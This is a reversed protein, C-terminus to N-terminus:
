NNNKGYKIRRGFVGGLYMKEYNQTERPSESSARLVISGNEDPFIVNYIQDPRLITSKLVNTSHTVFFAQAHDMNNMLFQIIFEELENSFGSSFEDFLFMANTSIAHKLIPLMHVLTQNGESEMLLPLWCDINEKKVFIMKQSDFNLKFKSNVDHETEYKIQTSFNNDRLLSNTYDINYTDEFFDLGSKENFNYIISTRKYSNFYASNELFSMWDKLIKNNSFKDIFYYKKLFLISKDFDDSNYKIQEGKFCVEATKTNREIIVENDLELKEYLIISTMNFKFSYLIKSKDISFEYSLETENSDGFLCVYLPLVVKTDSFLMTLLLKISELISTKGVANSGLIVGGKVIGDCVNNKIIGKFKTAEFDIVTENKFTKFNKLILKKLM